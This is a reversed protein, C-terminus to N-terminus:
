EKEKSLSKRGYALALGLLDVTHDYDMYHDEIIERPINFNKQSYMQQDKYTRITLMVSETEWVEKAIVELKLVGM